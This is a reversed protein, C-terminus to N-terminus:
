EPCVHSAAYGRAKCKPCIWRRLRRYPRCGIYRKHYKMAALTYRRATRWSSVFTMACLMLANSNQRASALDSPISARACCPSFAAARSAYPYRLEQEPGGGPGATVRLQAREFRSVFTVAFKPEFPAGPQTLPKLFKESRARRSPSAPKSVLTFGAAPGVGTTVWM